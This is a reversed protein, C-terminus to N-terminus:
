NQDFQQRRPQRWCSFQGCPGCAECVNKRIISAVTEMKRAVELCDDLSMGETTEWAIKKLEEMITISTKGFLNSM